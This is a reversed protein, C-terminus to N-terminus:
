GHISNSDDHHQILQTTSDIIKEYAKIRSEDNPLNDALRQAMLIHDNVVPQQFYRNLQTLSLRHVDLFSKTIFSSVAGGVASLLGGSALVITENAKLLVSGGWLVFGFGALMSLIAFIFSWTARSRTEQQYKKIQQSYLDFLSGLEISDRSEELLKAVHDARAELGEQSAALRQIKKDLQQPREIFAQREADRLEESAKRQKRQSWYIQLLGLGFGVGGFIAGLLIKTTQSFEM